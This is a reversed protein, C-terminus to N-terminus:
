SPSPDRDIRGAMLRKAAQELCEDFVGFRLNSSPRNTNQWQEFAGETWVYFDFQKLAKSDIVM